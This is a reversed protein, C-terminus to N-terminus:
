SGYRIRDCEALFAKLKAASKIGPGSEVGSSVDVVLPDFLRVGDAVNDTNIGGALVLNKLKRRPRLAWDFAQGTGGAMTRTRHDLLRLDARCQEVAQYDKRSQIAFAKIVRYGRKQLGTIHGAPEDGHLQIYDLRLRDALLLIKELSEDVFVGVRAVTPPLTRVIGGALRRTVFRPSRRYFILGIMDVGLESALHADQPRTLGCVKVRFRKM